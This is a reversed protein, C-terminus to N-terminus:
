FTEKLEQMQKMLFLLSQAALDDPSDFLDRWVPTVAPVEPSVASFSEISGAGSYGMERLALFVSRWDINGGGLVGRDSENLHLHFLRNGFKRLTAGIGREEINMHYTDLLLGVNPEGIQEILRHAQGATNILYTEYRNVPEVALRVGCERGHRAVKRLGEAIWNLEDEGPKAGSFYGPVAYMMGALLSGGMERVTDVAATLFEVGRQRTTQDATALACERKLALTGVVEIGVAEAEARIRRSSVRAPNVVSIELISFGLRKAHGILGLDEDSWGRTWLRSHVGYRM